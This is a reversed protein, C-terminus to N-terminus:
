VEPRFEQLSVFEFGAERAKTIIQPLAVVTASRDIDSVPLVNRGDHLLIVAGPRIEKLVSQLIGEEGKMWDYGTASWMVMQLGQQKLVRMLGFWRAGYPPRFFRPRVGTAREIAQQTRGIEEGMFRRSRLYLFPHSFAHNGVTHGEAVMRRALDPFSEVNKGCLFFTASVHHEKLVDLIQATFPACPGDDFTLALRRGEVPGRNLVPRFFQSTPVSCAYFLFVGVAAAATGILAWLIASM